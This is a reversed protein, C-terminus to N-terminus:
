ASDGHLTLLKVLALDFRAPLYFKEPTKIRPGMSVPSARRRPKSKPRPAARAIAAVLPPLAAHAPRLRPITIGTTLSLASYHVSGSKWPLPTDQNALSGLYTELAARDKADSMLTPLRLACYDAISRPTPHTAPM